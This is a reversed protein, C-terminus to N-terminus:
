RSWSLRMLAADSLLRWDAPYDRVRRIVSRNEFILSATQRRDLPGPPREYVTWVEGDVLLDRAGPRTRTALLPDTRERPLMLTSNGGFYM